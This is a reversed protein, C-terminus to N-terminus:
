VRCWHDNRCGSVHSVSSSSVFLRVVIKGLNRSDRVGHGRCSFPHVSNFIHFILMQATAFFASRIEASQKVPQGRVPTRHDESSVRQLKVRPHEGCRRHSCALSVADPCEAESDTWSITNQLRRIVIESVECPPSKGCRHHSCAIFVADRCEAESGTWSITNQLRRIVSEETVECQSKRVVDHPAHSASRMEASQKVTQVRVPTRCVESSVRRQLQVHSKGWMWLTSIPERFFYRRFVVNLNCGAWLAVFNHTADVSSSAPLLSSCCGIPFLVFSTALNYFVPVVHQGSTSRLFSTWQVPCPVSVSAPLLPECLGRHACFAGTCKNLAYVSRVRVGTFVCKLQEATSRSAGCTVATPTHPVRRTYRPLSLFICSYNEVPWFTYCSKM